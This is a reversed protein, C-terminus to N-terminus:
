YGDEATLRIDVHQGARHGLWEPLGLTFSRVAPTETQIGTVTGLQWEIPRPM